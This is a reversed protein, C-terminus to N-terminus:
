ALMVAPALKVMATLSMLQGSHLAQTLIVGSVSVKLKLKLSCM